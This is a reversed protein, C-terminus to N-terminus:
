EETSYIVGEPAKWGPAGEVHGSNSAEDQKSGDEPVDHVLILVNQHSQDVKAGEGDVAEDGGDVPDQEIAEVTVLDLDEQGADEDEVQETAKGEEEVDGLEGLTDEGALKVDPAARM